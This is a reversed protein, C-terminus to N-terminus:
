DLESLLTFKNEEKTPLRKMNVARTVGDRVTYWASSSSSSPSTAVHVKAEKAEREGTKDMRSRKVLQDSTRKAELVEQELEHQLRLACLRDELEQITLHGGRDSFQDM